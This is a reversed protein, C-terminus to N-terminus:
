GQDQLGIVALEVSGQRATASGLHAIVFDPRTSLFQVANSFYRKMAPLLQPAATTLRSLFGSDGQIMSLSGVMGALAGTIAV